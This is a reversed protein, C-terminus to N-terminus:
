FIVYIGSATMKQFKKLSNLIESRNQTNLNSFHRIGQLLASDDNCNQLLSTIFYNSDLNEILDNKFDKHAILKEFMTVSAGSPSPVPDTKVGVKFIMDQSPNGLGCSSNNGM